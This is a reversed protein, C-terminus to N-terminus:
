RAYQRGRVPDRVHGLNNKLYSPFDPTGSPTDLLNAEKTTSGVKMRGTSVALVLVMTQPRSAKANTVHM